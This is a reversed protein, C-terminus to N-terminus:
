ERDTVTTGHDKAAARLQSRAGPWTFLLLLIAMVRVLTPDISAYEGIGACVGAIMRNATSRQLKRYKNNM